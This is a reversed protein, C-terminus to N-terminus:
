STEANGRSDPTEGSDKEPKIFAVKVEVISITQEGVRTQTCLAGDFQVIQGDEITNLTDKIDKLSVLHAQSM